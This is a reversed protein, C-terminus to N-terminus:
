GEVPFAMGLAAGLSPSVAAGPAGRLAAAVAGRLLAASERGAPGLRRPLFGKARPTEAPGPTGGAARSQQLAVAPHHPVPSRGVAGQPRGAGPGRVAAEGYRAPTEGTRGYEPLGEPYGYRPNRRHKGLGRVAPRGTVEGAGEDATGAPAEWTGCLAPEGPAGAVEQLVSAEPEGCCRRPGRVAPDGPAEGSKGRGGCRLRRSGGPEMPVHRLLTRGGGPVLAALLPPRRWHAGQRSPPGRAASVSCRSSVPSPGPPSRHSM